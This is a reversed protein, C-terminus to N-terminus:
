AASKSLADLSWGREARLERVRRCLERSVTDVGDTPSVSVEVAVPFNDAASHTLVQPVPQGPSSGAAPSHKTKRAKAAM